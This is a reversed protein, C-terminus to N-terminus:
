WENQNDPCVYCMTNGNTPPGTPSEKQLGGITQTSLDSVAKKYLNLQKINKKM